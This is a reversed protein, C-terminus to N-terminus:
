WDLMVAISAEGAFTGLAPQVLLGAAGDGLTSSM